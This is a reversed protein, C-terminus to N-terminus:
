SKSKVPLIAGLTNLIRGALNIQNGDNVIIHGKEKAIAIVPEIWDSEIKDDHLFGEWTLSDETGRKRLKQREFRIKRDKEEDDSAVVAILHTNELGLFYEAEEPSRFGDVVIVDPADSAKARRSAMTMTQQAFIQNGFAPKYIDNIDRLEGRTYPPNSGMTVAIDRLRDSFPLFMVNYNFNSLTAAVESKGSAIKGVVGIIPIKSLTEKSKLSDYYAELERAIIPLIHIGNKVWGSSQAKNMLQDLSSQRIAIMLTSALLCDFAKFDESDNGWTDRLTQRLLFLTQLYTDLTNADINESPPVLNLDEYTLPSDDKRISSM